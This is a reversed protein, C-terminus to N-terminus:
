MLIHSTMERKEKELKEMEAEETEEMEDDLRKEEEVYSHTSVTLDRPTQVEDM